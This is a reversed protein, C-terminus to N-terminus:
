CIARPTTTVGVGLLPCWSVATPPSRAAPWCFPVPEVADTVTLLFSQGDPSWGGGRLGAGQLVTRQSSGDVAAVVLDNPPGQTLWAVRTGDPSLTADYARVTPPSVQRPPASPAVVFAAARDCTLIPYLITDAVVQPASNWPFSNIPVDRALLRLSAPPCSAGGVDPWLLIRLSGGLVRNRGGPPDDPGRLLRALPVIAEWLNESVM